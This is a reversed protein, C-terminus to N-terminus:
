RKRGGNVIQKKFVVDAMVLSLSVLVILGWDRVSLPVVHFADALPSYIVLVQLLLSVAVAGFLWPNSLLGMAFLNQRESRAQFANVMEFVVLATFAMTSAYLYTSGDGDLSVGWSWGASLLVFLYLGLSGVTIVTSMVALRLVMPRNVIFSSKEMPPRKMIDPARPEFGLALAPLGDTILNVWLIQIAVLPLKLGALVALVIIMIESINSSLLFFVFKRLNDFISRGEEVARVISAFNDDMLVMTSAERAVDTGGRGMAVGIDAQRLAPADNVGDGTMAVVHDKEQLAEVIRIKQEPSVRAFISIEEVIGVPDGASELESGSMAQGTIGLERGIAEATLKQDGTIMVVKIGAERCRAVADIVEPRPPDNMAQLGTFILGEERFEHETRVPKWAFGLVRLASSAFAENRRLIERRRAEDLPEPRGDKMISSCHELLVDPAGKTYMVRGDQPDEHLTSMMKRTSDFGIEDVRPSERGLVMPEFGNNKASMLLAAETPDGFIEGDDELRADNCLAGIRLMLSLEPTMGSEPHGDRFPVERGSVYVKRVSMRNMTMTGTKDSCIVSSSGLTEISPLHRVIANSRVMKQVGRALTLAVVAPLGEPIAAVALSISTKFTELLEGGAWWTLFFILASAAMVVLALRRSFHNLKKQLPSKRSDEDEALLEAIRGIETHMGTDTVVARARGRAVLTGSYVMNSREALPVDGERPETNKAVPASEGTLMAEQTEVNMAEVLRADAPVRDGTELLVLDGPVLRSTEIKQLRGDRMVRAQLGSIKKLEGLAKEARFEQLFGILANAVLIFAIIESELVDGLFLSVVVAFLLLWVLVSNFQQLFLKWVSIREEERLRNEGYEQLRREAESSSLGDISSGLASMVEQVTDNFAKM